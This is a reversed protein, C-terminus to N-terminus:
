MDGGYFDLTVIFATGEGPTSEANLTGGHKGVIVDHAIALGQGSGKGVEKTTFFPDFIRTIKEPHIGVGTDEIVMEARGDVERTKVTITGKVGSDTVKEEIAHAANVVLNLIVQNLEGSLGKIFPLNPDLQEDVDAVYKWENRAVTLTTRITENLNVPQFEGSGPHSFTRMAKVIESIRSVGDAARVFASPLEEALFEMDGEELAADIIEIQEPLIKQERCQQALGAYANIIEMLDEVAESTFQISDGVYQTPTNIEHAIGSALHGISELKQAVSLQRELSKRETVDFLVVALHDKGQIQTSQVHREVFISGGEGTQILIEDNTDLLERSVCVCQFTKEDFAAFLDDCLRGIAAEQVFGFMAEAISNMEVLTMTKPEFILFAAGLGNLLSQLLREGERVASEALRREEVERALHRTREEIRSELEENLQRLEEEQQKRLTIDQKVAIFHTVAGDYVIPTVTQHENYLTGNKHKNILDGAWNKGSLITSWLDEYFAEPQKGSRLVRLSQGHVERLTYGTMDVFAQNVWQINGEGDLIAIANVTAALAASQLRYEEFEKERSIDRAVVVVSDDGDAGEIFAAHIRFLRASERSSYDGQQSVRSEIAQSVPHASEPLDQGRVALPLLETIPKGLLMIRSRDLWNVFTQNCWRLTGAGDTWLIAEDIAGLAMEMHGMVERLEKVLAQCDQSM